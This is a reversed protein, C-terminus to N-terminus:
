APKVSPPAPEPAEVGAVNVPHEAYSDLYLEGERDM